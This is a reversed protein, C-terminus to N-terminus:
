TLEYSSPPQAQSTSASRAYTLSCNKAYSQYPKKQSQIVHEHAGALKKPDHTKFVGTTTEFSGLKWLSFDEPNKAIQTDDNAMNAFQRLAMADNEM